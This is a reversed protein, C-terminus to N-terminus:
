LTTPWNYLADLRRCNATLLLSNSTRHFGDDMTDSNVECDFVYCKSSAFVSVHSDSALWLPLRHRSVLTDHM